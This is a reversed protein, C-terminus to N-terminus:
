ANAGDPEPLRWGWRRLREPKVSCLECLVLEQPEGSAIDIVTVPPRSVSSGCVYCPRSM